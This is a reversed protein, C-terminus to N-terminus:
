RASGAIKGLDGVTPTICTRRGTSPPPSTFTRTPASRLIDDDILALNTAIVFALNKGHEDNMRRAEGVIWRVMPFNLLPEGGQFEIKLHPSPSRFALRLAQRATAESM